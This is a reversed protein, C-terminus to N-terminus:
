YGHTSPLIYGFLGNNEGNVGATFYIVSTCQAPPTPRCPSCASMPSSTVAPLRGPLIAWLGDISIINNNKDTISNLWSGTTINFVNIRGDGFNGVYLNCNNVLLGWPSNLPGRNILRRVLAGDFTFVDVFGNGAGKVDDHREDDRLAYTVYLYGQYALINFPSYGADNLSDDTFTSVLNWNPDYQEIFGGAFNTVYLRTGGTGGIAVGKYVADATTVRAVASSPSIAPNYGLILGDETVVIIKSPGMFSGSINFGTSGNFVIGSPTGQSVGDEGPVTVAAIQNYDPGLHLLLGSGNAAVWFTNDSAQLLGWPNVLDPNTISGYYEIDSVLNTQTYASM